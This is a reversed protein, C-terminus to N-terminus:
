GSQCYAHESVKARASLRSSLFVVTKGLSRGPRRLKIDGGQGRRGVVQNYRGMGMDRARPLGISAQDGTTGVVGARRRRSIGAQSPLNSVDRAQYPVSPRSCASLLVQVAGVREYGSMMGLDLSCARIGKKRRGKAKRPREMGKKARTERM